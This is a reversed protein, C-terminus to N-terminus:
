TPEILKVAAESSLFRSIPTMVAVGAVTERRAVVIAASKALPVGYQDAGRGGGKPGRSALVPLAVRGEDGVQRAGGARPRRSPAGLAGGRGAVCREVFRM